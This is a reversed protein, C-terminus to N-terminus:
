GGLQYVNRVAGVRSIVATDANEERALLVAAELISSGVSALRLDVPKGEYSPDEDREQNDRYGSNHNCCLIYITEMTCASHSMCLTHIYPDTYM